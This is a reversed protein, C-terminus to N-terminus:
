VIEWPFALIVYKTGRQTHDEEIQIYGLEVLKYFMNSVGVEDSDRIHSWDYGNSEFLERSMSGFGNGQWYVRHHDDNTIDDYHDGNWHMFQVVANRKVDHSNENLDARKVVFPKDM